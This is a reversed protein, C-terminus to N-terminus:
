AADPDFEDDAVYVKHRLPADPDGALVTKEVYGRDRGLTKLVLAVAWAEGRDVAESLKQEARDILEGRHARIAAAVDPSKKARHYITDPDCGVVRAALYVLGKTEALAAIIRDNTYKTPRAM